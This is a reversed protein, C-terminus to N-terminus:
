IIQEELNIVLLALVDGTLVALRDVDLNRAPRALLLGADGPMLILSVFVRSTTFM